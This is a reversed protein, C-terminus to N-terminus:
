ESGEKGTATEKQQFGDPTEEDALVEVKQQDRLRAQGIIVVAEGEGLGSTIEVLHDVIIGTEVPKFRATQTPDVVFVGNQGQLTVLAEQPVTIAQQNRQLIIEM